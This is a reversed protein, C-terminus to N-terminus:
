QGVSQHLCNGDSSHRKWLTIHRHIHHFARSKCVSDYVLVHEQEYCYWWYAFTMCNIHAEVSAFLALGTLNKTSDMLWSKISPRGKGISGGLRDVISCVRSLVNWMTTWLEHNPFQIIKSACGKVFQKFIVEHDLVQDGWEGLPWHRRRIYLFQLGLDNEWEWFRIDKSYSHM